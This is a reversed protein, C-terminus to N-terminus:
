VRYKMNCGIIVELGNNKFVKQLRKKINEMQPGSCNQFNSMGDDRDFGINKTDQQRGYFNLLFNFFDRMEAMDYNSMSVDFLDNGKKM